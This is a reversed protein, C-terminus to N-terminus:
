TKRYSKFDGDFNVKETRYGSIDGATCENYSENSIRGIIEIVHTKPLVFSLFLRLNSILPTSKNPFVTHCYFISNSLGLFTFLIVFVSLFFDFDARFEVWFVSVSM